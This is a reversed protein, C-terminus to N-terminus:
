QLEAYRLRKRRTISEFSSFNIFHALRSYVSVFGCETSPTSVFDFHMEASLLLSNASNLQICREHVATKVRRHFLAIYHLLYPIQTVSLLESSFITSRQDNILTESTQNAKICKFFSSFM